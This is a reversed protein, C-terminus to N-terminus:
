LRVELELPGPRDLQFRASRGGIGAGGTAASVEYTGLFGCVGIRGSPDTRVVTPALWWEGKVLGLLADYAPKPSCDARILGGPAGLWGGDALDWWTAAKVAPHSLLTKYHRVVEDAQSEEGEPTTPWDPIQAPVQYDNLDEIEPPMLHGSLITTETFHIPLGYRAFREITSLTEQEGWYGQHMHSQLGLADIRIGGELVGEILCEFATSMDFDNLLLFAGPNSERATEFALRITAIRGNARCIRTMGNDYRDYVPMIVAENVADWTDVVGRFDSVERRIRFREAEVIEENSLPLLWDACVSHWLLPHGKVRVGREAFWRCANLIRTTDPKGRDREFRGWYFPMTAFNLLALWRDRFSEMREREAAHADGALEGNLYPILDFGTAGFLFAHDRQGVTLELGAAPAGDPGVITLIADATRHERIAPEISGTAISPASASSEPPVPDTPM